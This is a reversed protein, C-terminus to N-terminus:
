LVTSTHEKLSCRPGPDSGTGPTVRSFTHVGKGGEGGGRVGGPSQLTVGGM